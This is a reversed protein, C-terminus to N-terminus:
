IKRVWFDIYAEQDTNLKSISIKVKYLAKTPLIIKTKLTVEQNPNITLTETKELTDNVFLNLKFDSTSSYYSKIVYGITFNSVNVEKPYNTIYVKAEKFLIVNYGDSDLIFSERTGYPGEDLDCYIDDHNWDICITDYREAEILDNVLVNFTKNNLELEGFKYVGSLSCPDILCNVEKIDMLTEIKIIKWYIEVFEEKMPLTASVYVMAVLVVFTIALLFYLSNDRAERTRQIKLKSVPKLFNLLILVFTVLLLLNLINFVTIEFGALHIVMSSLIFLVISLVISLISMDLTQLKEGFLLYILCYGPFFFAFILTLIIKGTYFILNDIPINLFTFFLILFITILLFRYNIDREYSM